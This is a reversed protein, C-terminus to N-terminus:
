MLIPLNTKSKSDQLLKPLVIKKTVKSNGFYKQFSHQKKFLDNPWLLIQGLEHFLVNKVIEERDLGYFKIPIEHTSGKVFSMKPPM